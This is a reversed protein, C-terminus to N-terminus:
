GIKLKSEIYRLASIDKIRLSIVLKVSIFGKETTNIGIYGDDDIFGVLFGLFSTPISLYENNSLRNKRNVYARSSVIGIIPLGIGILGIIPLGM